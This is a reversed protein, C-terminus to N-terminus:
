CHDVDRTAVQPWHWQMTQLMYFVFLNLFYIDIQVFSHNLTFRGFSFFSYIPIYILLTNKMFCSVATSIFRARHFTTIFLLPLWRISYVPM